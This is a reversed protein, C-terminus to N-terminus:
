VASYGGRSDGGKLRDAVNTGWDKVIYPIDRITDGHPILDWGRAGYRNYNLWSGFIIYAAALLFVIILLWTFFGWGGKQEEDPDKNNAADECAFKTKWRLRLTEVDGEKKYSVFKLNKYEDQDPLKPEDDEKDDRKRMEGYSRPSLLANEDEFGENGTVSKDCLFEVIAKQPTGSRDNPYKGGHLEVLVGEKEDNNSASGKLRTYKPELKRGHSTTYEGAIPIVRRVTGKQGRKSDYEKACVVTGIPCEEDKKADKPKKLPNCIDITFTTNEISPPEWRTRHVTKPGGLKKFNWQVDDARIHGCDLSLASAIAPVLLLASSIHRLSPM